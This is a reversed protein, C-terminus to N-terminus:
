TPGSGAPRPLTAAIPVEARSTESFLPKFDKHALIQLTEKVISSRAKESLGGGRSAVFATAAQARAADPLSPLHELLAHTLTGRLFRNEAALKMPSPRDYSDGPGKEERMVPEGEADPAYAELRSPALPVSLQPETRARKLAFAPLAVPPHLVAAVPVKEEPKAEQPSDLRLVSAGAQTVTALKPALAEEILDYWCGKARGKKGEFGAVYLRDRARTMAVYLLRNREASARAEEAVRAARIAAVGSTGKVAWVLPAPVGSPRVANELEVLRTGPSDGSGTTCTDPLFVIPAELGKAGHVTMVRVEDRGHEM